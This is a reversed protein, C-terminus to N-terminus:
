FQHKNTWHEVKVKSSAQESVRTRESYKSEMDKGDIALNRTLFIISLAYTAFSIPSHTAHQSYM